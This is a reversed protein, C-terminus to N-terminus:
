HMQFPLMHNVAPGNVHPECLTPPTALATDLLQRRGAVWWTGQSSCSRGGPSRVGRDRKTICFAGQSYLPILYITHRSIEGECFSSLSALLAIAAVVKLLGCMRIPAM